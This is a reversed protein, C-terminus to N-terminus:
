WAPQAQLYVLCDYLSGEFSVDISISGWHYACIFWETNPAKCLVFDMKQCDLVITEAMNAVKIGLQVAHPSERGARIFPLITNLERVLVNLDRGGSVNVGIGHQNIIQHRNTVCIGIKDWKHKIGYDYLWMEGASNEGYENNIDLAESLTLGRIKAREHSLEERKQFLENLIRRIEDYDKQVVEISSNLRSLEDEIWALESIPKNSM